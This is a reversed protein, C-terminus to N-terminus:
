RREVLWRHLRADHTRFHETFWHVLRRELAEPEYGQPSEVDAMIDLIDDLLREHDSKHEGIAIYKLHRMEREELAFHAAIRAHIEGLAAVIQAAGTSPGISDLLADIMAILERHEHDVDALGITFEDRWAIRSV